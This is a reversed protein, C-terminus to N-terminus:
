PIRTSQSGRVFFPRPPILLWALVVLLGFASYGAVFVWAPAEYYLLEQLWHAIFSGAYVADSGMARFQMEWRTLPCIEGLWAQLAVFVIGALHALRFWPNRIWSWSFLHGAVILLLGFIVFMVFLAHIFLIADAAALYATKTVTLM